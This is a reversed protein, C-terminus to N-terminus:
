VRKFSDVAISYPTTDTVYTLEIEDHSLITGFSYGSDKEVITLTRGDRGIVGAIDTSSGEGGTYTFVLYGIFLRDRQETVTLIMTMDPYDTFGTREDYGKMLGTWNGTLDPLATVATTEPIVPGPPAPPAIATCGCALVALIVMLITFEIKMRQM